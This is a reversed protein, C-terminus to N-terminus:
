FLTVTIQSYLNASYCLSMTQDAGSKLSIGSPFFGQYYALLLCTIIGAASHGPETASEGNPSAM